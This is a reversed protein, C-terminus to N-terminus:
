RPIRWGNFCEVFDRDISDMVSKVELYSDYLESVNTKEDEGSRIAEVTKIFEKTQHELEDTFYALGIALDKTRM